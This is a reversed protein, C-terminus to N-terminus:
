RQSSAVAPAISAQGVKVSGVASEVKSSFTVRPAIRFAHRRLRWVVRALM